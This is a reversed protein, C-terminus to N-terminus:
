IENSEGSSLKKLVEKGTSYGRAIVIDGPLLNFDDDPKCFWDVCRKIAIIWMGINDELGLEGIPKTILISEPQIELRIVGEEAEEMVMQFVPHPPIGEKVIMAIQAAADAINETATAIKMLGLQKRIASEDQDNKERLVALELRSHLDDIYDEIELVDEAIETNNYLFSSYALDIMLESLDKLKILLEEITDSSM